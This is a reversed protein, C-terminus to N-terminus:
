KVQQYLHMAYGIIILALLTGVMGGIVCAIFCEVIMM